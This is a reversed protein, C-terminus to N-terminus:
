ESQTNTAAEEVERSMAVFACYDDFELGRVHAHGVRDVSAIDFRRVISPRFSQDVSTNSDVEVARAPDIIM